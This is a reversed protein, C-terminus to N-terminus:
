KVLRQGACNSLVLSQLRKRISQANVVLDDLLPTHVAHWSFVAREDLLQSALAAFVQIAFDIPFEYTGVFRPAGLAAPHYYFILLVLLLLGCGAVRSM